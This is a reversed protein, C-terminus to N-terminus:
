VHDAETVVIAIEAETEAKIVKMARELHEKAMEKYREDEWVMSADLQEIFYHAWKLSQYAFGLKYEPHLRM